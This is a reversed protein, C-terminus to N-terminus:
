PLTLALTQNSKGLIPMVKGDFRMRIGGANGTIVRFNDKATFIQIDGPAMIMEEAPGGDPEVRVWANAIAKIELVKKGAHPPQIATLSPQAKDNTNTQASTSFSQIGASNQGRPSDDIFIRGLVTMVLILLSFFGAVTLIRTFWINQIFPFRNFKGNETVPPTDEIREPERTQGLFVDLRRVTDEPDLDLNKAYSKLFGKVFVIPPLLEYRDKELLDLNTVAIKTNESIDELSKGQEERITKLYSGFSEM